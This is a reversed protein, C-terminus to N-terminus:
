VEWTYEINKLKNSLEKKLIIKNKLLPKIIHSLVDKERLPTKTIIYTYFDKDTVFGKPYNAKMLKIATASHIKQNNKEKNEDLDFCLQTKEKTNMFYTDGKFVEWVANRYLKLGEYNHAFFLLYYIISNTYTRFEFPINLKTYKTNKFRELIKEMLLESKKEIDSYNDVCDLDKYSKEITWRKNKATDNNINKKVDMVMYNFILESYTGDIFNILLKNSVLGYNYPDVYLLTLSHISLNYKCYKSLYYELFCNVDMNSYVININHLNKSNKNICSRLHEVRNKCIDNVFLNFVISQDNSKEAYKQMLKFVCVVTTDYHKGDNSDSNYFGANSMPDIFNLQNVGNSYVGKELWKNVYSSVLEVKKLTHEKAEDIKLLVNKGRCCGACNFSNEGECIEKM